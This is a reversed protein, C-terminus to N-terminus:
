SENQTKQSLSELTSWLREIAKMGEKRPIGGFSFASENFEQEPLYIIASPLATVGTIWGETKAIVGGEIPVLTVEFFKSATLIGRGWRGFVFDPNNVMVKVKNEGFWNLVVTKVEEIGRGAITIDKTTRSLSTALHFIKPCFKYYKKFVFISIQFL